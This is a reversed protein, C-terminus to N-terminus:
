RKKGKIEHKKKDYALELGIQLIHDELNVDPLIAVGTETNMMLNTRESSLIEKGPTDRLMNLTQLSLYVSTRSKSYMQMREVVNRVVRDELEVEPSIGVVESETDM